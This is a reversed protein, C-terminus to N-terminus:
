ASEVDVFHFGIQACFVIAISVSCTGELGTQRHWIDVLCWSLVVLCHCRCRVITTILTLHLLGRLHQWGRVGVAFVTCHRTRHWEAAHKKRAYKSSAGSLKGIIGHDCEPIPCQWHREGLVGKATGTCRSLRSVRGLCSCSPCRPM